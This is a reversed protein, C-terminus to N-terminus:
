IGNAGDRILWNRMHANFEEPQEILSMHGAQKIIALIANPITNALQQSDDLNFVADQEAHIILTPCTIKNLISLCDKRALMACEQPILADQNRSLMATVPPLYEKRYVFANALSRIIADYEGNEAQMIMQQRATAKAPSDPKATTNALCLKTVRNPATKMIELAVWGGMSHGALAFQDPAQKLAYAVMKEPTDAHTLDPIIINAVDSLENVQNLWIAADCLLGPLLLLNQQTM